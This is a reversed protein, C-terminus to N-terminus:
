CRTARTTSPIFKPRRHWRPQTIPPAPPFFDAEDPSCWHSHVSSGNGRTSRLARPPPSGRPTFDRQASLLLELSAADPLVGGRVWSLYSRFAREGGVIMRLIRWWATLPIPAIAAPPEIATCTHLRDSHRSAFELALWAGYSYGLLHFCDYGLGDVVEALWAAAHAGDPIPAPQLGRGADWITDIATIPRNQTWTAALNTWIAATSGDGQLLVLPASTPTRMTTSYA